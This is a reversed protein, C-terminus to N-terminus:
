SGGATLGSLNATTTGAQVSICNGVPTPLTQRYSWAADGNAITLVAANHSISGASLTVPLTDFDTSALEDACQADSYTKWTYTTGPTLGSLDATTTSQAASCTGETPSSRKHHWTGPHNTVTLTAGRHTAAAAVAPTTDALTAGSVIDTRPGTGEGNQAKIAVQYSTAPELGTIDHTLGTADVDTWKIGPRLRYRVQYSSVEPRGPDNAAATWTVTLTDSTGPKGVVTPTGPMQLPPENEDNISITVTISDTLGDSPVDQAGSDDATITVEYSPQAEFDFNKDAATRISGTQANLTFNENFAAQDDGGTVSYTLADRNPDTAAVRGVSQTGARTETGVTEDVSSLSITDTFEPAQNGAEQVTVDISQLQNNGRTATDILIYHTLVDSENDVKEADQPAEITVTQETSWNSRTFTLVRRGASSGSFSVIRNAQLENIYVGILVNGSPQSALKITYSAEGGEPVTLTTDSFVVTQAMADRAGFGALALAVALLAAAPRSVAAARM